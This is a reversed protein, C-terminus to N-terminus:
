HCGGSPFRLGSLVHRRYRSEDVFGRRGAGTHGWREQWDGSLVGCCWGWCGRPWIPYRQREPLVLFRSNNVVLGFAPRATAGDLWDVARSSQPAAGARQVDTACGSGTPRLWMACPSAPWGAAKWTINRELYFNFQGVETDAVLRVTVQRLFDSKRAREQRCGNGSLRGPSCFHGTL